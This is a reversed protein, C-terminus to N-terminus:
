IPALIRAGTIVEQNHGRNQHQHADRRREAATCSPKHPNCGASVVPTMLCLTLNNALPIYERRRPVLEARSSLLGRLLRDRALVGSGIALRVDAIFEAVSPLKTRGVVAWKAAKYIAYMLFDELYHCWEAVQLTLKAQDETYVNMVAFM